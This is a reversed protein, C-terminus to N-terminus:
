PCEFNVNKGRLNVYRHTTTATFHRLWQMKFLKISAKDGYSMFECLRLFVDNHATEHWIRSSLDIRALNPYGGTNWTGVAFVLLAQGMLCIGM